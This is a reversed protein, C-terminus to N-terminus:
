AAKPSLHKILKQLQSQSDKALFEFFIRKSRPNNGVLRGRFLLYKKLNAVHDQIIIVDFFSDAFDSTLEDAVRLGSLSVNVCKTRIAKKHNCILVTLRLDHRPTIRRGSKDDIWDKQMRRLDVPKYSVKQLEKIHPAQFVEGETHFNLLGIIEADLAEASAAFFSFSNMSM